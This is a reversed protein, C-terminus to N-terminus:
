NVCHAATLVTRSTILSGGCLFRNSFLFRRFLQAMFPAEGPEVEVGNIIRNPIKTETTSLSLGNNLDNLYQKLSQDALWGIPSENGGDYVLSNIEMSYCSTTTAVIMLLALLHITNFSFM